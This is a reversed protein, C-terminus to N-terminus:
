RNESLWEDQDAMLTEIGGGLVGDIDAADLSGVEIEQWSMNYRRSGGDKPIWIDLTYSQFLLVKNDTEENPALQYSRAVLADGDDTPIWRYDKHMEYTMTGYFFSERRILNHARMLECSRDLMCDPDGEIFTRTYLNPSSAEVITRDEIRILDMHKEPPHVSQFVVGLGYTDAPDLDHEVIGEVESRPFATVTYSREQWNAEYDLDDTLLVLDAILGEMVEPNEWETWLQRTTEDIEPPAVEPEKCALLPLLYIM